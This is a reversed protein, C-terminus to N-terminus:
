FCLIECKLMQSNDIDKMKDYYITYGIVVKKGSNEIDLDSEKLDPNEEQSIPDLDPDEPARLKYLKLDIVDFINLEPVVHNTTFRVIKHNMSKKRISDMFPIIHNTFKSYTNSYATGLGINEKDEYLQTVALETCQFYRNKSTIHQTGVTSSATYTEVPIRPDKPKKSSPAPDSSPFEANSDESDEETEKAMLDNKFYVLDEEKEMTEGTMYDLSYKCVDQESISHEDGVHLFYHPDIAWLNNTYNTILYNIYYIHSKNDQILHDYNKSLFTNNYVYLGMGSDECVSKLIESIPVSKYSKQSTQFLKENWLMGTIEIDDDFLQSIEEDFLVNFKMAWNKYGIRLTGLNISEKFYKRIVFDPDHITMRIRPVDYLQVSLEFEEFKDFTFVTDNIKLLPYFRGMIKTRDDGDSENLNNTNVAFKDIEFKIEDVPVTPDILKTGTM